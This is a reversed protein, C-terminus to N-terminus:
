FINSLEFSPPTTYLLFTEIISITQFLLELDAIIKPIFFIFYKTSISLNNLDIMILYSILVM